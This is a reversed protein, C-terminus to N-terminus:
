AYFRKKEEGEENPLQQTQQQKLILAEDIVDKKTIPRNSASAKYSNKMYVLVYAKTFNEDIAKNSTCETVM